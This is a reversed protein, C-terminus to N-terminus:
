RDQHDLTNERSALAGETTAFILVSMEACREDGAYGKGKRAGDM